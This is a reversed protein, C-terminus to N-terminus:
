PVPLRHSHCYCRSTSHDDMYTMMVCIHFLPHQIRPKKIPIAYSLKPSQYVGLVSLRRHSDFPASRERTVRHYAKREFHPFVFAVHSRKPPWLLVLRPALLRDLSAITLPFM